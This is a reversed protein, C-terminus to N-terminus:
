SRGAGDDGCPVAQVGCIKAGVGFLGTALALRCLRLWGFRHRLARLAGQLVLAGQTAVALVDVGVADRACRNRGAEGGRQRIVSQRDGGIVSLHLVALSASSFRASTM